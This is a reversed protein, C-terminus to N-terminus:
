WRKGKFLRRNEVLVALVIFCTVFWFGIDAWYLSRSTYVEGSIGGEGYYKFPWGYSYRQDCCELKNTYVPVVYTATTAAYALVSSLLFIVLLLVENKRMFSIQSCVSLNITHARYLCQGM